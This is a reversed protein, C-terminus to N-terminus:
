SAVEGFALTPAAVYDTAILQAARPFSTALRAESSAFGLGATGLKVSARRKATIKM